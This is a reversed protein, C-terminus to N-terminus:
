QLTQAPKSINIYSWVAFIYQNNIHTTYEGEGLPLNLPDLAFADARNLFSKGYRFKGFRGADDLQTVGCVVPKDDLGDLFVYAKSTM